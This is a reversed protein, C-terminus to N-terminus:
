EREINIRVSLESCAFVRFWGRFPDADEGVEFEVSGMAKLSQWTQKDIIALIVSKGATLYPMAETMTKVRVADDQEM